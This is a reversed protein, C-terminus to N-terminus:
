TFYLAGNIKLYGGHIELDTLNFINGDYDRGWHAVGCEPIYRSDASTFLTKSSFMLYSCSFM